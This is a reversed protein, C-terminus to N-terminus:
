RIEIGFFTKSFLNNMAFLISIVSLHVLNSQTFLGFTQLVTTLENFIFIVVILFTMSGVTFSLLREM